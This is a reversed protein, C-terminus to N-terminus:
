IEKIMKMAQESSIKGNSLQELIDEKTLTQGEINEGYGLANIV